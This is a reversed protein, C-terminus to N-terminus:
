WVEGIYMQREEIKVERQCRRVQDSLYRRVKTTNGNGRHKKVLDRLAEWQVLRGIAGNTGGSIIMPSTIWDYKRFVFLDDCTNLLCSVIDDETFGLHKRGCVILRNCKGYESPHASIRSLVFQKARDKGKYKGAFFPEYPSDLGGTNRSEKDMFVLCKSVILEASEYEWIFGLNDDSSSGTGFGGRGLMAEVYDFYFSIDIDLIRRLLKKDLDIVEIKRLQLYLSRVTIFNTTLEADNVKALDFFDTEIRGDTLGKDLLRLLEGFVQEDRAVKKLVDYSLIVKGKGTLLLRCYDEHEVEADNEPLDILAFSIWKSLNQPQYAMLFKLFSLGKAKSEQMIEVIIRRMVIPYDSFRDLYSKLYGMGRDHDNSRNLALILGVSEHHREEDAKKLPLISSLNELFKAFEVKTTFSYKEELEKRKIEPYNGGGRRIQNSGRRWELEKFMLTLDTQFLLSVKRFKKNLFKRDKFWRVLDRVTLCESLRDPSFKSSFLITLKGQDVTMVESIPTGRRYRLSDVKELIEKPYRDYLNIFADWIKSRTSLCFDDITIVSKKARKEWELLIRTAAHRRLYTVAMEIILRESLPDEREVDGLLYEWFQQHKEFGNEIEEEDLLVKSELAQLLSLIFEPKKRIYTFAIDVGNMCHVVDEDFSRAILRLLSDQIYGANSNNRKIEPFVVGDTKDLVQVAEWAYDLYDEPWLFGFNEYFLILDSGSVSEELKKLAPGFAEIVVGKGFDESTGNVLNRFRNDHGRYNERLLKEFSLYGEEIFARYFYYARLNQDGLLVTEERRDVLERRELAVVCEIFERETIGAFALQREFMESNDSSYVVAREFALLGLVRVFTDTDMEDFDKIYRNYYAHYIRGLGGALADPDDSALRALMMAFRASGHSVKVIRSQLEEREIMYPAGAIMRRITEDSPGSMEYRVWNLDDLERELDRRAISRVTLLLEIEEGGSRRMLHLVQGLLKIKRDADDILVTFKSQRSKIRELDTNVSQHNETLVFGPIGTEKERAKLFEVGFRTKGIGPKGSLLVISGTELEEKVKDGAPKRDLFPNTLPTALAGPRSDLYKVFYDPRMVQGTDYAIGLFEEAIEPYYLSIDTALEGLGIFGIKLELDEGYSKLNQIEAVTFEDNYCLMVEYTGREFGKKNAETACKILDKKFKGQLGDAVTTHEGLLMGGGAMWYISDPTGTRSKNKTKHSGLTSVYEVGPYHARVYADMIKQFRAGGEALLKAAIIEYRGNM